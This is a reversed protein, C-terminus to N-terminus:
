FVNSRHRPPHRPICGRFELVQSPRSAAVRGKHMAHLKNRLYAVIQYGLTIVGGTSSRMSEDLGGRETRLGQRSATLRM